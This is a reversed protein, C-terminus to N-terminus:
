REQFSYGQAVRMATWEGQKIPLIPKTQPWFM